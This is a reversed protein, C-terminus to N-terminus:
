KYMLGLGLGLELEISYQCRIFLAIQRCLQWCKLIFFLFGTIPARVTSAGFAGLSGVLPDPPADYAGGLPTRPPARGFDFKTCELAALFGSTTIM